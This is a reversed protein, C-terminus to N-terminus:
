WKRREVGIHIGKRKAGKGEYVVVIRFSTESIQKILMLDTM